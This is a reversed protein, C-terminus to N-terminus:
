EADNMRREIRRRFLKYCVVIMVFVIVAMLVLTLSDSGITARASLLRDLRFGNPLKSLRGIQVFLFRVIFPSCIAVYTNPLFASVCLGVSAWLAGALFMIYLIILFYPVGAGVTLAGYFPMWQHEVLDLETVLPLYTSLTLILVLGGLFLSVGGMFAGVIFKSLAYTRKGCRAVKYASLRGQLEESYSGAFPVAALITIFYESFVGGFSYANFVYYHVSTISNKQYILHNNISQILSQGNDFCFGLAVGLIALLLPIRIGCKLDAMVTNKLTSKDAM